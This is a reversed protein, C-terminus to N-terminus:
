IEFYFSVFEEMLSLLSIKKILKINSNLSYREHQICISITVIGHWSFCFQPLFLFLFLFLLNYSKILIKTINTAFFHTFWIWFIINAYFFFIRDKRFDSFHCGWGALPYTSCIKKWNSSKWPFFCIFVKRKQILEVPAM